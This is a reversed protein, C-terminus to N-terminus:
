GTGSLKIPQEYPRRIPSFIQNLVFEKDKLRSYSKDLYDIETLNDFYERNSDKFDNYLSKNIIELQDIYYRPIPVTKGKVTTIRGCNFIQQYHDKLHSLGLGNSTYIYEDVLGKSKMFDRDRNIKKTAYGGIYRASEYTAEGVTCFGKGWTKELFDSTYIKPNSKSDSFKFFKIDDFKLGFLIAHYHPRDFKSGYEGCM